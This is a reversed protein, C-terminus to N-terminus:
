PSLHETEDAPRPLWRYGIGLDTAFSNPRAPDEELKKRLQSVFV